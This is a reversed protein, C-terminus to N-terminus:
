QTLEVEKIKCEGECTECYSDDFVNQIVWEQLMVDWEAYADKLVNESDCTKCKMTIKYSM